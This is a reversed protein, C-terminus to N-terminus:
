ETKSRKNKRNKRSKKMNDKIKDSKHKNARTKTKSKKGGVLKKRFDIEADDVIKPGIKNLYTMLDNVDATSENFTPKIFTKKDLKDEEYVEQIIKCVKENDMMINNQKDTLQNFIYSVPLEVIVPGKPGAGGRQGRRVPKPNAKQAEIEREFENAQEDEQQRKRLEPLQRILSMDQLEQSGSEGSAGVASLEEPENEEEPRLNRLEMSSGPGGIKSESVQEEENSDGEDDGEVSASSLSPKNSRASIVPRSPAAISREEELPDEAASVRPVEGNSM